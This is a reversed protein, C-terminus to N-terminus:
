EKDALRAPDELWQRFTMNGHRVRSSPLVAARLARGWPGPLRVPVVVRRSRRARLTRRALDVLDHPRPGALDTVRGAAEEEALEVLAAAVEQAAIPVLRV